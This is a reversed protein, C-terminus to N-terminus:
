QFWGSSIILSLAYELCSQESLKADPRYFNADLASEQQFGGGEKAYEIAEKSLFGHDDSVYEDHLLGGSGGAERAWGCM